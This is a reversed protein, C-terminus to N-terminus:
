KAEEIQELRKPVKIDFLKIFFNEPTEIGLVVDSMASKYGTDYGRHWAELHSLLLILGIIISLYVLRIIRKM